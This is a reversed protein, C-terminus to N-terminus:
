FSSLIGVQRGGGEAWSCIERVGKEVEANHNFVNLVLIMKEVQKGEGLQQNGGIREKSDSKIHINLILIM